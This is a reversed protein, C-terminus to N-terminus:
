TATIRSMWTGTDADVNLAAKFGRVQEPNQCADILEGNAYHRQGLTYDSMVFTTNRKPGVQLVSLEPMTVNGKRQRMGQAATVAGPRETIESVEVFLIVRSIRITL